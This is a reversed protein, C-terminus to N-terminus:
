IMSDYFCQTQLLGRLEKLGLGAWGEMGVPVDRLVVDGGNQFQELPLSEM